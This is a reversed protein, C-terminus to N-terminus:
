VESRKVNPWISSRRRRIDADPGDAPGVQLRRGASNLKLRHRFSERIHNRAAREASDADGVSIADLIARHELVVESPRGPISLTTSRMRLFVDQMQTLTKILYTNHTAMCLALHFERNAAAAEETSGEVVDAEDELIQRLVDMEAVSAHQAALRAVVGELAERAEYLEVVQEDGMRVVILGGGGRVLVGESELYRCAERVPTRSIGLGQAVELETIRDGPQFRGSNIGNLIERYVTRVLSVGARQKPFDRRGSM